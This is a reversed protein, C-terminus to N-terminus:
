EETTFLLKTDSDVRSLDTTANSSIVRSVKTNYRGDYNDVDGDQSSTFDYNLTGDLKAADASYNQILVGYIPSNYKSSLVIHLDGENLKNADTTGISISPRDVERLVEDLNAKSIYTDKMSISTTISFRVYKLSLTSLTSGNSADGHINVWAVGNDDVVSTIDSTDFSLAEYDSTNNADKALVYTQTNFNPFTIHYNSSSKAVTTVKINSVLHRAVRVKDMLSYDSNTKVAGYLGWIDTDRYTSEILDVLNCSILAQPVKLELKTLLMYSNDSNNNSSNNYALASFERASDTPLLLGQQTDLISNNHYGRLIRSNNLSQSNFDVLTTYNTPTGSLLKQLVNNQTSPIKNWQVSNDINDTSSVFLSGENDIMIKNTGLSLGQNLNIM